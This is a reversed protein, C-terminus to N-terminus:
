EAPRCEPGVTLASPGSDPWSEPVPSSPPAVPSGPVPVPPPCPSSGSLSRDVPSSGVVPPWGAPWTVPLSVAGTGTGCGCAGAAGRGAAGGGAADGGAAGCGGGDAGDVGGFVTGLVPGPGVALGIGAGTTDKSASAVVFVSDLVAFTTVQAAQEPPLFTPWRPRSVPVSANLLMWTVPVPRSSRVM